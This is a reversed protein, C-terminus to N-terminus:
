KNNRYESLWNYELCYIFIFYKYIPQQLSLIRQLIPYFQIKICNVVILKIKTCLDCLFSITIISSNPFFETLCSDLQLIHQVPNSNLRSSIASTNYFSSCYLDITIFFITKYSASHLHHLTLRLAWTSCLIFSETTFIDIM